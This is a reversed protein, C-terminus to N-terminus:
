VGTRQTAHKLHGVQQVSANTQCFSFILGLPHQVLENRLVPDAWVALFNMAADHTKFEFIWDLLGVRTNQRKHGVAVGHFKALVENVKAKWAPTLQEGTEPSSAGHIRMPRVLRVRRIAREHAQTQIKFWWPTSIEMCLLKADLLTGDAVWTGDASVGSLRAGLVSSFSTPPDCSFFITNANDVAVLVGDEQFQLTLAHVMGDDVNPCKAKRQNRNWGAGGRNDDVVVYMHTRPPKAARFAVHCLVDPNRTDFVDISFGPLGPNAGAGAGAGAGMSRTSRPKLTFTLVLTNCRRKDAERCSVSSTSGRGGAYMSANWGVTSLDLALRTNIDLVHQKSTAVGKLPYESLIHADRPWTVAGDRSRVMIRRPHPAAHRRINHGTRRPFAAVAEPTEAIAHCVSLAMTFERCFDHPHVFVITHARTYSPVRIIDCIPGFAFTSLCM